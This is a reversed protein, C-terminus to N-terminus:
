GVTVLTILPQLSHIDQQLIHRCYNALVVIAQGTNQRSMRLSALRSLHMVRGSVLFKLTQRSLLMSSSAVAPHCRSCLLCGRAPSLIFDRQQDINGGCHGCVDLQPAYGCCELLHLMFFTALIDAQCQNRALLALVSRTLEFLNPDPDQERGFLRLLECLFVAPVYLRYNNRLGLYADILEASRLFHLSGRRPPRCTIGLLTFPELKNIFRKKSKRAGKAIATVRGHERSYLTVIKDAESHNRVSLVLAPSQWDNM